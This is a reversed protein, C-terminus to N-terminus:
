APVTVQSQFRYLSLLVNTDPTILGGRMAAAIAEDDPTYFRQFQDRLGGM